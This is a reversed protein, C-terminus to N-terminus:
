SIRKNVFFLRADEGVLSVTFKVFSRLRMYSLWIFADLKSGKNALIVQKREEWLRPTSSQSV